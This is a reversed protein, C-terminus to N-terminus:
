RQEARGLISKRGFFINKQLFDKIIKEFDEYSFKDFDSGGLMMSANVPPVIVLSPAESFTDMEYSNVFLVKKGEKLLDSAKNSAFFTKGSGAKGVIHTNFFKTNM